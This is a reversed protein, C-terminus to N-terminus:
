ANFEMISFSKKAFRKATLRSSAIRAPAEPGVKAASTRSM